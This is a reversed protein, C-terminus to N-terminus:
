GLWGAGPKLTVHVNKFASYEDFGYKGLERGIGSQKYGGIGMEPTGAGSGNIWTRGARVRRITSLAKDLDRSWVHASLGYHTDNATAVAEETQQKGRM